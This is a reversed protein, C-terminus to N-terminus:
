AVYHDAFLLHIFLVHLWEVALARRLLTSLAFSLSTAWPTGRKYYKNGVRFLIMIFSSWNLQAQQDSRNSTQSGENEQQGQCYDYSACQTFLCLVTKCITNWHWSTAHYKDRLLYHCEELATIGWSKTSGGRQNLLIVDRAGVIKNIGKINDYAEDSKSLLCDVIRRNM